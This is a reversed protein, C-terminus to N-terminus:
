GLGSWAGRGPLERRRVAGLRRTAGLPPVRGDHLDLRVRAAPQRPDLRPPSNGVARRQVVAAGRVVAAGWVTATARRARHASRTPARVRQRAARAAAVPLALAVRAVGLLLAICRLLLAICGDAGAVTPTAPVARVPVSPRRCCPRRPAAAM